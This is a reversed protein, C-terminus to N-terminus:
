LMLASNQDQARPRGLNRLRKDPGDGQVEMHVQHFEQLYELDHTITVVSAGQPMNQMLLSYLESASQKSVASTAEDMFLLMPQRLIVHAVALRQLMGPSLRINWNDNQELLALKGCSANTMKATRKENTHVHCWQLLSIILSNTEMQATQNASSVVDRMDDQSSDSPKEELLAQLGVLKLVDQIREYGYISCPDPYAIAEALTCSSPLLMKQPVFCTGGLGDASRAPLCVHGGKALPWIGAAVKFLTSKGCGERGTIVMNCGPTITLDVAGWLQAGSPINLAEFKVSANEGSPENITVAKQQSKKVNSLADEFALIRDTCARWGVIQEYLNPLFDLSDTVNDMVQSLEVFKHYPLEGRLVNPALLFMPLITEFAQHAFQFFDYRRQCLMQWLMVIKVGQFRQHLQNREWEIGNVMAISEAQQRMQASSRRFTAEERQREGTLVILPRAVRHYIFTSLTCWLISWWLLWGPCYFLGLVSPPCLKWLVPVFLFLRIFCDLIRFFIDLLGAIFFTIDEQIRQEPNDVKQVGPLQFSMLYFSHGDLWSHILQQTMHERWLLTLLSGFYDKYANVSAKALIMLHGLVLLEHFSHMDHNMLAGVWMSALRAQQLNLISNLLTFFLIVVIFVRGRWGERSTLYPRSLHWAGNFVKWFYRSSSEHEKSEPQDKGADEGTVQKHFMEFPLILAAEVTLILILRVFVSQWSSGQSSGTVLLSIGHVDRAVRASTSPNGHAIDHAKRQAENLVPLHIAPSPQFHARKEGNTCPLALSTNFRGLVKNVVRAVADAGQEALLAEVAKALEVEQATDFNHLQSGKRKVSHQLLSICEDSDSIEERQCWHCKATHSSSSYNLTVLSAFAITFCFKRSAVAPMTVPQPHMCGADLLPKRHYPVLPVSCSIKIV